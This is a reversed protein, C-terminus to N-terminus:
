CSHTDPEHSGAAIEGALVRWRPQLERETTNFQRQNMLEREDKVICFPFCMRERKRQNWTLLSPQPFVPQPCTIFHCQPILCSLLGFFFFFFLKPDYSLSWLLPQLASPFHGGPPNSFLQPPQIIFPRAATLLHEKGTFETFIQKYKIYYTCFALWFPNIHSTSFQTATIFIHWTRDM